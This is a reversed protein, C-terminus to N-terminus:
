NTKRICPAGPEDTEYEGLSSLLNSNAADQVFLKILAELGRDKSALSKNYGTLINLWETPDANKLLDISEEDLTLAGTVIGHVLPLLLNYSVRKIEIYEIFQSIIKKLVKNELEILFNICASKNKDDSNPESLRKEYYAERLLKKWSFLPSAKLKKLFGQNVESNLQHLHQLNEFISVLDSASISSNLEVLEAEDELKRSVLKILLVKDKLESAFKIIQDKIEKASKKDRNKVLLKMLLLSFKKFCLEELWKQPPKENLFEILNIGEDLDALLELIDSFESLKQFNAGKKIVFGIKKRFFLEMLQNCFFAKNKENMLFYFRNLYHKFKAVKRVSTVVLTYHSESFDKRNLDIEPLINKLDRDFYKVQHFFSTLKAVLDKNVNKDLLEKLIEALNLGSLKLFAHYFYALMEHVVFNPWDNLDIEGMRQIFTNRSIEDNLVAHHTEFLWNENATLLLSGSPQTSRLSKKDFVFKFVGGTDVTAPLAKVEELCQTVHAISAFPIDSLLYRRLVAVGKLKYEPLNLEYHRIIKIKVFFILNTIAHALLSNNSLNINKQCYEYTEKLFNYWAIVKEQFIDISVYVRIMLEIKAALLPEDDFSDSILKDKLQFITEASFTFSPFFFNLFVFIKDCAQQYFYASLQDATVMKKLLALLDQCIDIFYYLGPDALTSLELCFISSTQTYIKQVLACFYIDEKYRDCLKALCLQVIRKLIKKVWFAKEQSIQKYKDKSLLINNFFSMLRDHNIADGCANVFTFVSILETLSRDPIILFLENLSNYKINTFLFYEVNKAIKEKFETLNVLEFLKVNCMEALNKSVVAGAEKFLVSVEDIPHYQLMGSLTSQLVQRNFVYFVNLNNLFNDSQKQWLQKKEAIYDDQEAMIIAQLKEKLQLLASLIPTNKAYTICRSSVKDFLSKYHTVAEHSPLLLGELGKTLNELLILLDPNEKLGDFENLLLDLMEYFNVLDSQKSFNDIKSQLASSVKHKKTSIDFTAFFKINGFLCILNELENLSGPKFNANDVLKNLEHFFTNALPHTDIEEAKPDGQRIRGITKSYFESFFTKIKSEKEKSGDANNNGAISTVFRHHLDYKNIESVKLDLNTCYYFYLKDLNHSIIKLSLGSSAIHTSKFIIRKIKQLFLAKYKEWNVLQAKLYDIKISWQNELVVM